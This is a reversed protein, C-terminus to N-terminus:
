PPDLSPYQREDEREQDQGEQGVDREGREEAGQDPRHQQRKDGIGQVLHQQAADERPTAPERGHRHGQRGRRQEDKGHAEGGDQDGPLGVPEEALHGAEDAGQVGRLPDGRVGEQRVDDEPVELGQELLIRKEPVGHPLDGAPHGGGHEPERLLEQAVEDRHEVVLDDDEDDVEEDQAVPVADDAVEPADDGQHVVLALGEHGPRVVHEAGDDEADDHRGPHLPDQPARPQHNTPSGM